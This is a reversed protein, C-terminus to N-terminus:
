SKSQSGKRENKIIHFINQYCYFVLYPWPFPLVTYCDPVNQFTWPSFLSQITISLSVSTLITYTFHLLITCHCLHWKYELSEHLLTELTIKIVHHSKVFKSHPITTPTLYIPCGMKSTTLVEANWSFCHWTHASFVMNWANSTITSLTTASTGWKIVTPSSFTRKKQHLNIDLPKLERNIDKKHAQHLEVYTKAM